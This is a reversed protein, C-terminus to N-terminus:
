KKEPEWVISTHGSGFQADFNVPRPKGPSANCIKLHQGDFEYIGLITKAPDTQGAPASDITKPQKTADIKFVGQGVVKSFRSVTYKDGAVTRFLIQAEDDALKMGSTTMSVVMWDGQMRALDTASADDQAATAPAMSVVLSLLLVNAMM